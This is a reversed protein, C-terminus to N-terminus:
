RDLAVARSRTARGLARRLSLVGRYMRWASRLRTTSRGGHRPTSGIALERLPYGERACIALFEADILDDDRSLGLLGEFRRPFSKPTGNVDGWPVGLLLRCERNYIASGVRRKLSERVERRAKVVADEGLSTEVVRALDTAPTRASNAYCLIEGQSARLGARVARGWGPAGTSLWRVEPHEEGLRGCVALTEDRSANEVLVLEFSSGLTRLAALYGEVTDAIFPAQNSVPLVISIKPVTM